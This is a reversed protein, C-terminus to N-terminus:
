PKNASAKQEYLRRLELFMDLAQRASDSNEEILSTWGHGGYPFKHGFHETVFQHFDEPIAADLPHEPRVHRDVGRAIQYGSFFAVL